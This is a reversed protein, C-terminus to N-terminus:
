SAGIPMLRSSSRASSLLDADSWARVLQRSSDANDGTNSAIIELAAVMREQRQATDADRQVQERERQRDDDSPPPPAVGRATTGTDPPATGIPVAMSAGDYKAVRSTDGNIADVIRDASQKVAAAVNDTGSDVAGAVDQKELSQLYTSIQEQPIGLDKALDNLNIGGGIETAVQEVSEGEAEAMDAINQALQQADQKRQTAELADRKALLEDLQGSNSSVGAYNNGGSGAGAANGTLALVQEFLKNYDDGSAYLRRGIQLVEDSSVTGAKLGQLALDLKKNDSYPSLDGIQLNLKDNASSINDVASSIGDAASGAGSQLAAIQANLSDLTDTYGLKAALDASSSNLQAIADAIRQAAVEQVKTLDSESASAKGASKALDNLQASADKSWQRIGAITVSLQSVNGLELDLSNVADAYKQKSQDVATNFQTVADTFQALDVGAQEWQVLQEPTLMPLAAEYAKRFDTLSIGPDLGLDTLEKSVKPKATDIQQKAIEQPSYFDQLFATWLAQAKDLGGAATVVDDAFEVFAAGTKGISVGTLDLTQQFGQTEAQLRGYTQVMTEGTVQLKEVEDVTDSLTGGDGLLGQSHVIDTTAAVLLQAGDM